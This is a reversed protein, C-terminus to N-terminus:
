NCLVLPGIFISARLMRILSIYPQGGDFLDGVGGGVEVALEGGNVFEELGGCEMGEDVLVAAGGDEVGGLLGDGAEAGFDGGCGVGGVGEGVGDGGEGVVDGVEEGCLGAVGEAWYDVGGADKEM